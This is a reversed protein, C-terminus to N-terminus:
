TTAQKYTQVSVCMDEDISIEYIANAEVAPGTGDPYYLGAPWTVNTATAGSRFKLTWLHRRDETSPTNLTFALSAVGTSNMYKYTKGADMAVTVATESDGTIFSPSEADINERAQAKQSNTLTQEEDYRVTGEGAAADQWTPDGNEDLTLVQGETGEDSPTDLKGALLTTLEASTPLAGLKTVLTMTIGSTVAAWQAATLGSRNVIYQYSWVNNDYIYRTTPNEGTESITKSEDALVVLYDNRTPVRVQGGSYFVTAATLEAKTAFPNGAADKTIYYAAVNQISSNVFDKDALQNASSAQEPVLPAIAAGAEANDRIEDLDEIEEQLNNSNYEVAMGGEDLYFHFSEIAMGNRLSFYLDGDSALVDDAVTLSSADTTPSAIVLRRGSIVAACAEELAEVSIETEYPNFIYDSPQLGELDTSTAIESSEEMLYEVVEQYTSGEVWYPEVNRCIRPRASNYDYFICGFEMAEEGRHSYTHLITVMDRDLDENYIVMPTPWNQQVLDTTLVRTPGSKQLGLQEATKNGVLTVGGIQPKDPLDAYTTAGGSQEFGFRYEDEREQVRVFMEKKGLDYVVSHCTIWVQPDDKSREDWKQKYENLRSIFDTDDAPTDVDIEGGVFESFWENSELTYAKSFKVSDMASRMQEIDGASANRLLNYRELGTGYQEIGQSTPFFGQIATQPTYAGGSGINTGYLHFNTLIDSEVVVVHGGVFEIVKRTTADQLYYHLEYDLDIMGQPNYIEVYDRIYAVAENVTQFHDLIYRVLMVSCVSDRKSLLSSVRDNGWRPVVNVEAFLGHENIGDQLFFPLIRYDESYGGGDVKQKSLGSYSANGMVAYRGESRPTFVSFTAQYDNLWDYNRGVLGGSSKVSCAGGVAASRHSEFWERAYQYDINGYRVAYLYDCKKEIEEYPNGMAESIRRDTESKPYADIVIRQITPDNPDPVVTVQNADDGTLTIAKYGNITADDGKFIRGFFVEYNDKHLENSEITIELM